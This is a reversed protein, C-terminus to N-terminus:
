AHTVGQLAELERKGESAKLIWGRERALVRGPQTHHILDHHRACLSLLMKHPVIAPGSQGRSWRHHVQTAKEGCWACWPERQRHERSLKAWERNVLIRKPSVANLTSNWSRAVGRRMATRKIASRRM